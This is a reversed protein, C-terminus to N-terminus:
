DKQCRLRIIFVGNNTWFNHILLKLPPPYGISTLLSPWIIAHFKTIEKGLVHIMNSFTGEKMPSSDPYNLATYYNILADVWVYITQSSDDPVDIGWKVREKNRSLSLKELLEFDSIIRKLYRNHIFEPEKIIDLVKSRIKDFNFMYNMEDINIIKNPQNM